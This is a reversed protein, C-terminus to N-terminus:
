MSQMKEIRKRFRKTLLFGCAVGLTNFIIDNLDSTRGSGLVFQMVEIMISLFAGVAISHLFKAGILNILMGGPVFMLANLCADIVDARNTVNLPMFNISSGGGSPTGFTM